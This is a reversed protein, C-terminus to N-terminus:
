PKELEVYIMLPFVRDIIRHCFKPFPLFHIPFLHREINNINFKNFIKKVEKKTYMRSVPNENGDIARCLEEPTKAERMAERGKVHLFLKIALRTVPFFWRKFILGEYYLSITSRGEPKLVRHIEEICKNVDATHHLVGGSSVFDFHNDPFPLNAADAVVIHGKLGFIKLAQETSKVAFETIDIGYVDSGSSAYNRVQWGPAGCGIDLVKKGKQSEFHWLHKSYKETSNDKTWDSHEYFEKTGPEYESEYVHFPNKEWFEKIKKASVM